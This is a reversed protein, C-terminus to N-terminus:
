ILELDRWQAKPYIGRYYLLPDRDIDHQVTTVRGIAITHDGGDYEHSLTCDIWASVGTLIPSGNPSSSWDVGDFKDGGSRAFNASLRAQDHALVNVVFRGSQRIEPWTSSTKAPSISILPPELSLSVFSQCTFGVPSGHDSIAAVVVVGSCFAGMAARMSGPTVVPASRIPDPTTTTAMHCCEDVRLPVEIRGAFWNMRYANAHLATSQPPCQTQLHNCLRRRRAIQAM